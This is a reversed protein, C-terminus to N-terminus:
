GPPVLFVAVTDDVVGDALRRVFGYSGSPAAIRQHTGAGVAAHRKRFAGLKQFHALITADTGSWNMDSRTGQNNDSGSPGFLRGSEDGYFIQVGGPSLLLATAAQRMKAPDRRVVEFFLETDHSSFYTLADFSPDPSLAAAYSAYLADLDSAMAPLTSHAAFFTALSSQFQFNLLSDFGGSTYYADKSVGHGFVEGTMWFPADDLKKGPNATKWDSLATTAADKLALWSALEVNAATDCRFGDFGLQRVWDTHWKVLYDRVTFGAQATAATDSKWHPATSLLPPLPVASAGETVFDPLFGVSQTLPDTGAPPYDPPPLYPPSANQPGLGARVWYGSWWDLWASSRYNVLDNWAFWNRPPTPTTTADLADFAAGTGDDFANPLYSKLDAGTAYGPHNMVVDALVRIGRAHAGDVLAALETTTGFNPDVRTFDLAWYGHYGYHKFDGSVGGGVWGHVQEVFPSIWIATAGLGAVYDLKSALGAFDGGHWTGIDQDGDRKRGFSGDNGPNGDLFRDTMVFYVVSNKWRFPTPAGGAKELLVVGSRDPVFTVTGNSAVAATTATYADQLVTGASFALSVDFALPQGPQWGQEGSSSSSACGAALAALVLLSASRGEGM